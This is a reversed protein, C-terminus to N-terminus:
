LFLSDDYQAIGTLVIQDAEGDLTLVLSGFLSNHDAVKAAGLDIADTGIEFDFIMTHDRRGDNTEAGFFFIDSGEGGWVRDLAGGGASIVDNGSGGNIWDSGRGARLVDAGAGGEIRDLRDSGVIVDNGGRGDFRLAGTAGEWPM